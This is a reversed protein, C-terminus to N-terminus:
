AGAVEDEMYFIIANETFDNIGNKAFTWWINRYGKRAELPTTNAMELQYDVICADVDYLVGVVYNLNVAKGAKQEGTTTDVIAPTVNISARDDVSQWYNVGEYNEIKLYEPNFIQPLVNATADTFLPQYLMARQRDKPTHRLLKYNVNDITKTPSWHYNASRETM